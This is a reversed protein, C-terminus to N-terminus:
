VAPQQQTLCHLTGFGWVLDVAHIGVVTRGPFLEALIGLAQRDAPDNFTPALVVRNGIYFNAYSAPLREGQFYLPGPSPLPVIEPRSGDELRLDGIQERARRLIPYNSDATNDCTVLAITKPGVFRCFDDIHGGTDDGAIGEDLYFVNTAGLYEALAAELQQQALSPNRAQQSNDLLCQRTSLLTGQGNVDIAGGELVLPTGDVAPRITPLGLARAALGAVRDDLQYDDYKAWATFGFDAVALEGRPGGQRVFMPGMDRTWGRNTPFRFFQVGDPMRGEPSSQQLISIVSAEHRADEVIIRVIESRSLWRTMEAFVWRISSLKNPWDRRNHPWAIWTAEHPSWEAPFYHPSKMM